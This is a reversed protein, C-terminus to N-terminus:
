ELLLYNIKVYPKLDYTKEKYLLFVSSKEDTFKLITVRVPNSGMFAHTFPMHTLRKVLPGNRFQKKMISKNLLQTLM